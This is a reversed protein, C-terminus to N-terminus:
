ASSGHTTDALLRDLAAVPVLWRRGIRVGPLDGRRLAAAVTTRHLGLRASVQAVSLVVLAEEDNSRIGPM